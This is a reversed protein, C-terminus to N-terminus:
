MLIDIEDSAPVFIALNPGLNWTKFKNLMVIYSKIMQLAIFQWEVYTQVLADVFYSYMHGSGINTM